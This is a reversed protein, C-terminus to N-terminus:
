KISDKGAKIPYKQLLELFDKCYHEKNVILLNYVIENKKCERAINGQKQGCSFDVLTKNNLIKQIEKCKLSSKGNIICVKNIYRECYNDCGSLWFIFFM